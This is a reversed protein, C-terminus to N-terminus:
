FKQVSFYILVIFFVVARSLFCIRWTVTTWQPEDVILVASCQVVVRHTTVAVILEHAMVAFERCIHSKADNGENYLVFLRIM